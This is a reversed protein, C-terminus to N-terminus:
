RLHIPWASTQFLSLSFPSDSTRRPNPLADSAVRTWARGCHRGGVRSSAPASGANLGGTKVSTKCVEGFADPLGLASESMSPQRLPAIMDSGGRLFM